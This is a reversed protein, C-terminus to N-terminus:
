RCTCMQLYVGDPLFVRGRSVHGKCWMANIFNQSLNNCHGRVLIAIILVESILEQKWILPISVSLEVIVENTIKDGKICTLDLSKTYRQLVGTGIAIPKM